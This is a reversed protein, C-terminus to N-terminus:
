ESEGQEFKEIPAIVSKILNLGYKGPFTLMPAFQLCWGLDNEEHLQCLIRDAYEIVIGANLKKVNYHKDIRQLERKLELENKNM